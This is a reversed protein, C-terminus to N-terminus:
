PLQRRRCLSPSAYLSTLKASCSRFHRCKCLDIVYARGDAAFVGHMESPTWLEATRGSTDTVTHKGLHFHKAVKEALIAFREDSIYGEHPKDTNAPGYVARLPAVPPLAPAVESADGQTADVSGTVTAADKDESASPAVDAAKDDRLEEATRNFIGPPIAQAIWREGAYDVVASAMVHLNPIDADQLLKAAHVDKSSTIRTAENGGLHAFADVSDQAVTYLINNLLYSKTEGPEAANLCPVDGRAIQAVGRAATNQFDALVRVAYRDRIMCEEQTNHPLERMNTLEENWDRANPLTEISTGGTHLYALQSRLGDPLFEPTDVLWPATPICTSIPATALLDPYTLPEETLIAQIGTAFKPSYAALLCFLSHYTQHKSSGVRPSPDFHHSDSKNAYFGAQCGTIHINEGELTTVNLYVFHGRLRLHQPPPNWVSLSMSKLAQPPLSTKPLLSKRLLHLDFASTPDELWSADESADAAAAAPTAAEHM